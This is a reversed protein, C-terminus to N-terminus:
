PATESPAQTGSSLHVRGDVRAIWAFTLQAATVGSTTSQSFLLNWTSAGPTWVADTTVDVNNGSVATVTATVITPATTDWEILRVKMSTAFFSADAVSGGPGYEAAALTLTWTTSAGSYSAVRGTPTYGAITLADFLITLSIAPEAFSWSRGVVTGRIAIMGGGGGDISREGDYPLQPITCYVTDGLRTAHLTVLVDVTVQFRHRSWLTVVAGLHSAIDEPEPEAGAPSSKPAIELATRARQASLAEHATLELDPGKHDDEASDYGTRITYGTLIGDPETVLEGLGQDNVLTSSGITADSTLQPAVPQITIAGDADTALFAGLLRLEHKLVDLLKVPKAYVYRRHLLWPAGAAAEAVAAQLTAASAFDTSLVFPHSGANALAPADTWVAELMDAVSGGDGFARPLSIAPHTAPTVETWISSRGFGGVPAGNDVRRMTDPDWEVWGDPTYVASVTAEWAYGEYSDTAPQTLRILDGDSIGAVTALYLRSWPYDTVDAAAGAALDWAYSASRPVGRLGALPPGWGMRGELHPRWVCRYETAAGVVTLVTSVPGIAMLDGTFEGDIASGSDMRIYRESASAATLVYLEWGTGVPRASFTVGWGAITADGNLAATLAACWAAQTRWFGALVITATSDYYDTRNTGSLRYATIRYPSAGPYYVGVVQGAGERPGMEADLLTTLPALSITWTTGDSLAPTGAIVGRALLTGTDSTTLADAGHGYIWVRRRRYTQPADYFPCTLTRDGLLTSTTVFHAQATTRLMGRTVTLTDLGTDIATVLVAETDIHYISDVTFLSADRVYLTTAAATCTTLLFGVKRPIKSFVSSAARKNWAISEDEDEVSISGLSANYDAGPLYASERFSLGERRLGNVRTVGTGGPVAGNMSRATCLELPCGEIAVRFETLGSGTDLYESIGTM